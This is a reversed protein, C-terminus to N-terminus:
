SHSSKLLLGPEEVGFCVVLEVAVGVRVVAMGLEAMDVFNNKPYHFYM